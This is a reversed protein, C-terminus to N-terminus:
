LATKRHQFPSGLLIVTRARNYYCALGPMDNCYSKTQFQMKLHLIRGLVLGLSVPSSVLHICSTINHIITIYPCIAPPVLAIDHLM